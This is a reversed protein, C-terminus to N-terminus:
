KRRIAWGALVIETRGSERQASTDLGLLLSRATPVSLLGVVGLLCLSYFLISRDM